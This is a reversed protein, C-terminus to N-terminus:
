SGSFAGQGALHANGIRAESPCPFAILPIINPNEFPPRGLGNRVFETPVSMNDEEALSLVLQDKFM